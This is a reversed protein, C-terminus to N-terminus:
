PPPSPLAPWLTSAPPIEIRGLTVRRGVNPLKSHAGYPVHQLTGHPERGENSNSLARSTGVICGDEGVLFDKLQIAVDAGDGVHFPYTQSAFPTGHLVKRKFRRGAHSRGHLAIIVHGCHGILKRRGCCSCGDTCTKKKRRQHQKLTCM